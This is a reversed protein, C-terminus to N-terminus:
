ILVPVDAGGIPLVFIVGLVLSLVLIIWVFAINGTVLALIIMVAIAAGVLANIVQQGPYTIPRGTILEQLKIFAIASGSFSVSGILVGLLVEATVYVAPQLGLSHLHLLEVISILAAAGGGVGNFIAVLQPMATMKVFRAVPVAIAAGLVMAVIALVLNAGSHRLSPLTFTMGVALVAAAAGVLNGRRAHKPSSLGKLALIFGAIAILYALDRATTLTFSVALM